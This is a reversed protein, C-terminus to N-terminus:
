EDKLLINLMSASPFRLLRTIERAAAQEPNIVLDLGLDEKLVSLEDAYEPDRIRAITHAGWAKQRYTCM